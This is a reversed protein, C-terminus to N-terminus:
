PKTRQPSSADQPYESVREAEASAEDLIDSEVQSEKRAIQKQAERRAAKEEARRAEARKKSARRKAAKTPGKGNIM